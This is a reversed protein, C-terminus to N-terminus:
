SRRHLRRHEGQRRSLRNRPTKEGLPGRLGPPLHLLLDAVVSVGLGSLERQISPGVGKLKQVPIALERLYMPRSPFNKWFAPHNRPDLFRWPDSTGPFRRKRSSAREPLDHKEGGTLFKSIPLLIPNLIVDLTRWFPSSYNVSALLSVLRILTLVFFLVLFFAIASWIMSVLLALVIGLTIKGFLALSGLVNSAMSLLIIAIVPSFDFQGIKLFEFRKFYDLYPDTIMTLYQYPKGLSSPGQFWTLIIRIVIALTYLLLLTSSLKFIASLM